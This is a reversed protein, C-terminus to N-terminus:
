VNKKKILDNSKKELGDDIEKQLILLHKLAKTLHLIIDNRERTEIAYKLDKEFSQHVVLIIQDM